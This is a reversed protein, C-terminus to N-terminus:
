PVNVLKVAVSKGKLRPIKYNAGTRLVLKAVERREPTHDSVAHLQIMATTQGPPIVVQGHPGSLTYDTGLAATGATIYNVTLPAVPAASATFMIMSDGGENVTVSSASIRITPTPGPIPTASPTPTPTPTHVPTATPTPTPTPTVTPTPTAGQNTVTFHVTLATGGSGSGGAGSFPTGKLTYAGVAPTWPNYNGSVDGFLSYPPNTETRNNTQTGTLAFVVSGVTVPSTNARVNLNHTPLSALNLTAGDTLTELDQDSDANVLTFSVVAVASPTATPTPTPAASPTPTPTASPTPTPTATPTATATATPTTTATPTPTPTVSSAPAVSVTDVLQDANSNGLGVSTFKLTTVSSNATFIVHYHQFTVSSPDSTGAVPPTITQDLLTSNGTVQVRLQLTAGSDPIGFVGADFDLMYVQNATSFFRQSISDGESDGGVSFVASHSTSTSGEARDAVNGVVTWRTVSGITDYPGTEFNANGLPLTSPTPTPTATPTGTPTPTAAPTASPTPTPTAGGNFVVPAVSVSDVLTDSNGNGTGIDTFRLTTSSGDATFTSRYHQFQVSNVDFTNAVPPTITQNVLISNGIVQINLQQTATPQGYVGSDFEVAYLQGNTTSVIQSLTDGESDAGASFTASHTPSTSGEAVEAVNGNGGVVWNMVDGPTNETGLEFNPNALLNAVVSVSDVLTDANANGLGVDTFSLTTTTSDAVFVFRYKQFTVSSADNTNAVPPTVTQDVLTSNGTVKVNLQLTGTPQGFIGSDFNLIYGKGVVTTFSQSIVTGESDGGVNLAASYIGTTAGEQISHVHGAGSVVWDTITTSPAHPDAEFDGNLILNQAQTSFFAILPSIIITLGAKMFPFGGGPNYTGHKSTLSLFVM